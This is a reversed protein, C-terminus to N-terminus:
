LRCESIHLKSHCNYQHHTQWVTQCWRIGILMGRQLLWIWQRFVIRWICMEMHRISLSALLNCWIRLLQQLQTSKSHCWELLGQWLHLKHSEIDQSGTHFRSLVTMGGKYHTIDTMYWFGMSNCSNDPQIKLWNNGGVRLHSNSRSGQRISDTLRLYPIYPTRNWTCRMCLVKLRCKCLKYPQNLQCLENGWGWCLGISQCMGQQRKRYCLRTRMGQMHSIKGSMNSSQWFNYWSCFGWSFQIWTCPLCKRHWVICNLWSGTGQRTCLCRGWHFWPHRPSHPPWRCATHRVTCSVSKQSPSSVPRYHGLM